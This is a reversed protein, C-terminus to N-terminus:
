IELNGFMPMKKSLESLIIAQIKVSRARKIFDNLKRLAAQRPLGRLDQSVRLLLYVNLVM